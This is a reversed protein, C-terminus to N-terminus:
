LSVFLYPAAHEHCSEGQQLGPIGTHTADSVPHNCDTSSIHLTLSSCPCGMYQTAKLKMPSQLLSMKAEQPAALTLRSRWAVVLLLLKNHAFTGFNTLKM